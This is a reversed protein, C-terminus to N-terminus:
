RERRRKSRWPLLNSAGSAESLFGPQFDAALQTMLAPSEPLDRSGVLDNSVCWGGAATAALRELPNPRCAALAVLDEVDLITSHLYGLM